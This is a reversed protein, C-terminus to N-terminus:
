KIISSTVGSEPAITYFSGPRNTARKGKREAAPRAAVQKASMAAAVVDRTQEATCHQRVNPWAYIIPQKAYKRKIDLVQYATNNRAPFHRLNSVRRCKRMHRYGFSATWSLRRLRQESHVVHERAGCRSKDFHLVCATALWMTEVRWHENAFLSTSHGHFTKGPQRSFSESSTAQLLTEFSSRVRNKARRKTARRHKRWAGQDNRHPGRAM